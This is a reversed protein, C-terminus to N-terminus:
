GRSRKKNKRTQIPVPALASRSSKEKEGVEHLILPQQSTSPHPHECQLTKSAILLFFDNMQKQSKQMEFLYENFRKQENVKERETQIRERELEVRERELEARQREFEVRQREFETIQKDHLERQQQSAQSTEEAMRKAEEVQTSLQYLLSPTGSGTSNCSRGTSKQYFMNAGTGLGQVQGKKRGGVIEWFVENPDKNIGKQKYEAMKQNYNEITKKAKEGVLVKGRGEEERSHTRIYVDVATPFVGGNEKALRDAVEVTSISGQVHGPHILKKDSGGRKNKRAQESRKQFDEEEKRKLLESHVKASMWNPKKQTAKHAMDKLRKGARENYCARVEGELEPRWTFLRKFNKFWLDKTENPTERWNRWPNNYNKKISNTVGRVVDSKTFWLEGPILEKKRSSSSVDGDDTETTMDDASVEPSPPDSTDDEDDSLPISHCMVSLPCHVGVQSLARGRGRGRRGGQDRNSAM